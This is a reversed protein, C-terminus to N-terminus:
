AKRSQCFSGVRGSQQQHGRPDQQHEQSCSSPNFGPYTWYAGRGVPAYSRPKWALRLIYGNIALRSLAPDPNTSERAKSNEM